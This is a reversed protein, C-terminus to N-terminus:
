LDLAPDVGYVLHDIHRVARLLDARLEVWTATLPTDRCTDDLPVLGRYDGKREYLERWVLGRATDYDTRVAGGIGLLDDLTELLPVREYLRQDREVTYAADRLERAAHDEPAPETM